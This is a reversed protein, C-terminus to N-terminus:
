VSACFDSGFPIGDPFDEALIHKKEGPLLDFYNDSFKVNSPTLFHVAHAFVDSTVMFSAKGEEKSFDSITLKAKPMHLNRYETTRLAATNITVGKETAKAYYCGTLTDFGEMLFTFAIGRFRPPIHVSRRHVRSVAGDFSLYGYEVEIYYSQGTDNIGTVYITNERSRLVFQLVSFARKVFYYSPKRFLYYDITPWGTEGWCDNYM